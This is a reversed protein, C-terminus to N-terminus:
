ATCATGYQAEKITSLIAEEPPQIASMKFPTNGSFFIQIRAAVSRIAPIPKRSSHTRGSGKLPKADPKSLKPQITINRPPMCAICFSSPSSLLHHSDFEDRFAQPQAEQKLLFHIMPVKPIANM